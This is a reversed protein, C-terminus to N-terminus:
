SADHDDLEVIVSTPDLVTVPAATVLFALSMGPGREVIRRQAYADLEEVTPFWARPTSVSM